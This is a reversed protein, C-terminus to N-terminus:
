MNLNDNVSIGNVGCFRSVFQEAEHANGFQLYLTRGTNFDRNTESRKSIKVTMSNRPCTVHTVKSTKPTLWFLEAMPKRTTRDVAEFSLDGKTSPVLVCGGKNEGQVGEATQYVHTPGCVAKVVRLGGRDDGFRAATSAFTTRHMDARDPVRTGRRASKTTIQPEDDIESGAPRKRGNRFQSASGTQRQSRPNTQTPQGAGLEDESGDFVSFASSTFSVNGPATKANLRGNTVLRRSVPGPIEKIEEEDDQIPDDSAPQRHLLHRQPKYLATSNAKPAKPLSTDAGCDAPVDSLPRRRRRGTKGVDVRNQTSRYEEVGTASKDASSRVSLVERAGKRQASSASVSKAPLGSSSPTSLVEHAADDDVRLRKPPNEIPSQNPRRKPTTNSAEPQSDRGGLFNGFLFNQGFDKLRGM